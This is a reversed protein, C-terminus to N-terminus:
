RWFDFVEGVCHKLSVERLDLIVVAKYENRVDEDERSMAFELMMVILRQLEERGCSLDLTSPRLYFCPRGWPDVGAIFCLLGRSKLSTLKKGVNSWPSNDAWGGGNAKSKSALINDVEWSTRWTCTNSWNLYADAVSGGCAVLYRQPIEKDSQQLSKSHTYPPLSVSNILELEWSKVRAVAGSWADPLM